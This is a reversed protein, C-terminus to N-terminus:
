QAKLFFDVMNGIIRSRSEIRHWQDVYRDSALVEGDQSKCGMRLQSWKAQGRGEVGFVDPL